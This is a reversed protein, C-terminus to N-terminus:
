KIIVTGIMRTLEVELAKLHQHTQLLTVLDEAGKEMDQQNELIMRKIKRLKLYTFCSHVEQKYLEDRGPLPGDYFDKWRPSIEYSTDMLSVALRSVEPKEHYLFDRAQPEKGDHYWKRYTEIIDVLQKNDFLDELGNEDMDEFVHEAVTKEEDWTRLGFELLARVAAREQQEDKFILDLTEDPTEPTSVESTANEQYEQRMQRKEEKSVRERIFKNVLTTLGQEDIKM